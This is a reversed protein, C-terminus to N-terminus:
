KFILYRDDYYLHDDQAFIETTIKQPLGFVRNGGLEKDIEILYGNKEVGYLHKGLSVASFIAFPFKLAKRQKLYRDTWLVRGGKTFIYVGEPTFILDKVGVTLTHITKPNISIVKSGTAAVMTNGIVKLYIVNNFLPKDSIAIDRLVAKKDSQMVLLRGDLSPFVILDNLFIPNAMRADLAPAPPLPEKYIPENLRLDHLMLTNNALVMALLNGKVNAGVVAEDFQESFLKKGEKSLIILRGDEAAAIIKGEHANVFSFGEPLKLDLLGSAKTIIQGNRLTAGERGVDVIPAPLKGAPTLRAVVSKPRYINKSACGGLLLLIAALLLLARKM